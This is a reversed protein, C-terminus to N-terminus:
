RLAFDLQLRLGHKIGDYVAGTTDHSLGYGIGIAGTSPHDPGLAFRFGLDAVARNVQGFEFGEHRGLLDTGVETRVFPGIWYRDHPTDSDEPTFWTAAIRTGLIGKKAKSGDEFRVMYGSGVLGGEIEFGSAMSLYAGAHTEIRAAGVPVPPTQTPPVDTLDLFPLVLALLPGATIM